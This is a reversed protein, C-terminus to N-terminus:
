DLGSLDMVTDAILRDAMNMLLVDNDVRVYGYGPPVPELQQVLVPPAPEYVVTPPLPRGVVWVRNPPGPPYCGNGKKALGPPCRGSAFETRYYTYVITRDRDPVVVRVPQVVVAESRPGHGHKGKDKNKDNDAWASSALGACLAPVVLFLVARMFDERRRIFRVV